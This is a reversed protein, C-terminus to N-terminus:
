LVPGFCRPGEPTELHTWQTLWLDAFRYARKAAPSVRELHAISDLWITRAGFRKGYRLALVGVAEGTTIVVEPRERLILRFLVWAARWRARLQSVRGGAADCPLDVRRACAVPDIGDTAHIPVTAVIVECHDFAPLVRKLQVWPGGGSSVALM